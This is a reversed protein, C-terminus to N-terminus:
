GTRLEDIPNSYFLRPFFVRAATSAKWGLSGDRFSNRFQRALYRPRSYFEWYFRNYWSKLVQPTLEPNPHTYVDAARHVNYLDWREPKKILGKREYEAFLPTDPFPMCVTVKAYDPMLRKAFEFTARMSRFTEGPTGIMFFGVVEIGVARFMEMAEISQEVDLDKKISDLAGQDGSEFGCAVQYLGARKFHELFRRSCRDARIGAALNFDFKLGAALVKEAIEEARKVSALFQDDVIRVEKIGFAKYHVLEALVRDASFVRYQDYSASCFSCESPCGRSTELQILPHSRAILRPNRYRWFEYLELDQFPLADLEDRRMKPRPPTFEIEPEDSLVADKQVAYAGEGNALRTIIGDVDIMMRRRDDKRYAIGKIEARAKQQCIEGFTKEGEGIVVVDCMSDVLSEVPLRRNLGGSAHVGGHIVISEPGLVWKAIIGALKAEYYVPTTVTLCVFKPKEEILFRVLGKWAMAQRNDRIGMDFIATKFGPILRKVYASLWLFAGVMQVQTAVDIKTGTYATFMSPQVIFAAKAEDLKPHM